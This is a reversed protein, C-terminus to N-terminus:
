RSTTEGSYGVRDLDFHGAAADDLCNVRNVGDRHAVPLDHRLSAVRLDQGEQARRRLRDLREHEHPGVGLEGVALDRNGAGSVESVRFLEGGNARKEGLNGRGGFNLPVVDGDRDVSATYRREGEREVPARVGERAQGNEFTADSYDRRDAVM